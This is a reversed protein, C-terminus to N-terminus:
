SAGRERYISRADVVPPVIEDGIIIIVRLKRQIASSFIFIVMIVKDIVGNRM